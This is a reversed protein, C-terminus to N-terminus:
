SDRDDQDGFDRLPRGQGCKELLEKRRKTAVSTRYRLLRRPWPALAAVVLLWVLIRLWDLDFPALLFREILWCAITAILLVCAISLGLQGADRLRAHARVGPDLGLLHSLVANNALAAGIM